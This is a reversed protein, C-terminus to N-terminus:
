NDLRRNHLFQGACLFLATSLDQVSPDGRRCPAGACLSPSHFFVSLRTRAGRRRPSGPTCSNDVASKRHAPCNKCLQLNSLLGVFICHELESEPNKSYNKKIKPIRKPKHEGIPLRRSVSIQNQFSPRIKRCTVLRRSSTQSGNEPSKRWFHSRNDIKERTM